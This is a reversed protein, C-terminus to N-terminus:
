QSVPLGFYKLVWMVAKRSETHNFRYPDFGWYVDAKSSPKDVITKYSMFGFVKGTVRSTGRPVEIGQDQDVYTTLGMGGCIEDLQTSSYWSGPWADDGNEWILERMWDFRAKGTFMSEVCRGEYGYDGCDQLIITTPTDSIADDVFEDGPFPFDVNLLTDLGADVMPDRWDILEDTEFIDAIATTAIAHHSRFEPILQIEKLGACTVRRDTSAALSRGYINKNLPTSWDLSAIGVTAYPYMLPGRMVETGDALEKEGFGIVFNVDNMSYFEQTSTFILPTMYTRVELFSELSRAGVMFINGGQEQYPALWVFKDAPGEPRFKQFMLQQSNSRAFILAAKYNVLTEYDFSGNSHDYFDRPWSFGDIGGVDGLFQWYANRYDERDYVISGNENPWRNSQNDVIQDVLALSLQNERAVFPIVSLNWRAVTIGGSDDKVKIWFSHEGNAFARVEAFRNQETLGEPVAWGLDNEDDVDDLDWGHRMSVINGNYSDARATWRFNLPQGTAINSNALIGSEGLFDETVEISPSFRTHSIRFNLVQQSYTRGISKAGATDRVQVAFLKYEGDAQNGYSIKRDEDSVSFTQWSSWEPDEFDILEDVHAEYQYDSGVNVPSGNEMIVAPVLLFRIKTPIGQEYDSDNGEYSLNLTAPATMATPSPPTDTFRGRCTPLITTSTFSIMAPSDDVGGDEDMCRVFFSHSRFSREQGEPDGPFNEQDALVYFSSDTATTFRWPNIEAGTLPDFTLTDRPSIGDIGNNSIKWQFGTVLGDPDSGTWNLDVKFGAELLTPPQGTVRTDPRSNPLLSGGLETNTSCAGLVLLVIGTFGIALERRIM